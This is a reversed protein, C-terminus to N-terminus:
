QPQPESEEAMIPNGKVDVVFVGVKKVTTNLHNVVGTSHSFNLDPSSFTTRKCKPHYIEM